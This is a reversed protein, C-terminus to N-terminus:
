ECPASKSVADSSLQLVKEQDAASSSIFITIINTLPTAFGNCIHVNNVNTLQLRVNDVDTVTVSCHRLISFPTDEQDQGSHLWLDKTSPQNSCRSKAVHQECDHEFQSSIHLEVGHCAFAHLVLNLVINMVHTHPIEHWAWSRGCWAFTSWMAM